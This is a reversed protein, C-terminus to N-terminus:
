PNLSWTVGTATKNGGPSAGSAANASAQAPDAAMAKARDVGARVIDMFTKVHAMFAEKTTDTSLQALAKTAKDGEVDSIAGGGRLNKFATLFGESKVQDLTAQFTAKETGHIAGTYQGYPIQVPGIGATAFQEDLGKNPVENGKADKSPLLQDLTALTDNASAITQPLNIAASSQADAMAKAKDVAAAHQPDANQQALKLQDDAIQNQKAQQAMTNQLTALTIQFQRDNQAQALGQTATIAARAMIPAAEPGYASMDLGHAKLLAQGQAWKAPDAQGNIDGGMAGLAVSGMLGISANANALKSADIQEHAQAGAVYNAAGNVPTQTGQLAILPIDVM